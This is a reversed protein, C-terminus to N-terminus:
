EGLIKSANNLADDIANDIIEDLDVSANFVEIVSAILQKKEQVTYEEKIDDHYKRMFLTDDLREHLYNVLQQDKVM